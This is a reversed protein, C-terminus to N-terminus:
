TASVRVPAASRSSKKAESRRKKGRLSKDKKKATVEWKNLDSLYESVEMSNQRIQAQIRAAEMSNNDAFFSRFIQPTKHKVYVVGPKSAPIAGEWKESPFQFDDVM